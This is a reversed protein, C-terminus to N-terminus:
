NLKRVRMIIMMIKTDTMRRKFSEFMTLVMLSWIQM